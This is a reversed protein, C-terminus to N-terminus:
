IEHKAFIPLKKEGVGKLSTNLMQNPLVEAYM